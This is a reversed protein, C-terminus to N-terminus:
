LNINIIIVRDVAPCNYNITWLFRSINLQNNGNTEDYLLYTPLAM